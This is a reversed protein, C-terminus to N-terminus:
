CIHIPVSINYGRWLMRKYAYRVDYVGVKGSEASLAPQAPSM